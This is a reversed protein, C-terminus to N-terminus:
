ADAHQRRRGLYIDLVAENKRLEDLQGLAFVKGQHLVTSTVGLQRVFEMDHEVVIVSAKEGLERTLAATRSTEERTMGATPEDLLIVSPSTLLVMGIELWQQQGHALIGAEVDFCSVLGMWDAMDAARQDAQEADQVGAYAALWLNERVTLGPYICPVQLKIGLGNRARKNSEMRTIDIGRLLIRGQSPAFRGALLNFFSSKGAGNPGLVCNVGRQTFSLTLGNVAAVHGFRKSLDQVALEAGGPSPYLRDLLGPSGDAKSKAVDREGVFHRMLAAFTPALG